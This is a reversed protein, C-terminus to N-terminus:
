RPGHTADVPAAEIFADMQQVLYVPVKGREFSYVVQLVRLDTRETAQGTLSTKPTVYPEVYEFRLPIAQKPNGRLFAVARATPQVRWADNEDISIRLFLRTDDGLLVAPPAGVASDVFQGPRVNLQLVRGASPARVRLRELEVQLREAEAQAVSVASAAASADDRAGTLLDASVAGKDVRAYRELYALHHQQKGAAAAAQSVQAQAVDLQARLERDDVMFLPDGPHVADGVRVDVERVVGAVATGVEVNGRGNETIGAGAVYSAFPSTPGSIAPASVPAAQNTYLVAVLAVILGLVAIGALIALRKM